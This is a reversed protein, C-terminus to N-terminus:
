LYNDQVEQFMSITLIFNTSKLNSIFEIVIHIYISKRQNPSFWPIVLDIAFINGATKNKFSDFNLKIVIYIIIYCIFQQNKIDTEM